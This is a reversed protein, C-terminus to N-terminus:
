CLPFGFRFPGDATELCIILRKKQWDCRLCMISYSVGRKMLRSRVPVVRKLIHWLLHLQKPLFNIKWLNNWLGIAPGASTSARDIDTQRKIFHYGAKVFYFGDRSWAWIFQDGTQELPTPIQGIMDVEFPLFTSRLLNISWERSNPLWISHQTSWCCGIIRGFILTRGM